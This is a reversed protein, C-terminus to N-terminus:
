TQSKVLRGPISCVQSFLDLKRWRRSKQPRSPFGHVGDNPNRTSFHPEWFAFSPDIHIPSTIPPSTYPEELKVPETIYQKHLQNEEGNLDEEERWKGKEPSLPDLDQFDDSEHVFKMEPNPEMDEAAIPVNNLTPSSRDSDADEEERSDVADEWCMQAFSDIPSSLLQDDLSDFCSPDVVLENDHTESAEASEIREDDDSDYTEFPPPPQSRLYDINNQVPKLAQRPGGPRRSPALRKSASREM